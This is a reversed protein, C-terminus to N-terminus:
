KRSSWSAEHRQLRVHPGAADQKSVELVLEQGLPCITHGGLPGFRIPPFSWGSNTPFSVAVSPAVETGPCGIRSASVLFSDAPDENSHLVVSSDWPITIGGKTETAVTATSERFIGDIVVRRSERTFLADRLWDVLLIQGTSSTDIGMESSTAQGVSDVEYCSDPPFVHLTLRTHGQAFLALPVVLCALLFQVKMAGNEWLYVNRLSAIRTGPWDRSFHFSKGLFLLPM